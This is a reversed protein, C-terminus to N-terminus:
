ILIRNILIVKQYRPTYKKIIRVSKKGYHFFETIKKHHVYTVGLIFGDGPHGYM